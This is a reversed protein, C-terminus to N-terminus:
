HDAMPLAVTFQAGAGPASECSITGGMAEVLQKAIYLGLGHSSIGTVKQQKLRGYKKFLRQQDERCLGPGSDRIRFQVFEANANLSIQVATGQPAYKIANSVLNDIIRSIAERTGFVLPLKQGLDVRFELQKREARTQYENILKELLKTLDVSALRQKISGNLIEQYDLYNALLAQMRDTTDLVADLHQEVEVSPINHWYKRLIQVGLRIGMLPSKLDHAILALDDDIEGYNTRSSVANGNDSVVASALGDAEASSAPKGIVVASINACLKYWQLARENRGLAEYCEAVSKSIQCCLDKSKTKSAIQWAQLFKVLAHNPLQAEKLLDGSRLMFCLQLDRSSVVPDATDSDPSNSLLAHEGDEERYPLTTAQQDEYAPDSRLSQASRSRLEASMQHRIIDQRIQGDGNCSSDTVFDASPSDAISMGPLQLQLINPLHTAPANESTHHDPFEPKLTVTRNRVDLSEPLLTDM